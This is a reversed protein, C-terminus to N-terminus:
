LGKFTLMHCIWGSNANTGFVSYSGTSSVVKDATFHGALTERTTFSSDATPTGQSGAYGYILEEAQQTNKSGSSIATGTGSNAAYQDLPNSTAIGSYEAISMNAKISSGFHLTVTITAGGNINSAYYAYATQGYGTVSSGASSYTNSKSDTPANVTTGSPVDFSVVILNGTTSPNTFAITPSNSAGSNRNSKSQVYAPPPKAVILNTQTEYDVGLTYNTATLKVTYTGAVTYQHTPNQATDTGGDGFTWSWTDVKISGVQTATFVVNFPVYGTNVGPSFTVNPTLNKFVTVYNSQNLAAVVAWPTGPSDTVTHNVNFVCYESTCPYQHTPSKTTTTSSPDNFGWWYSNATLNTGTSSDTFTFTTTTNGFVPTRTWSVIPLVNQAVILNTFPPSVGLTYNTGTLSVTYTGATNYTHPNPTSTSDGFNWSYSDVNIAGVKAPTFAVNLPIIGMTKDQTFNVTPTLNRFITVWSSRNVWTSAEWPTGGASTVSHNITYGCVEGTNCPFFHSPSQTNSTNGDNFNWFYSSINTGSSIDTFQVLTSINGLNPFSFWDVSPPIPLHSPPSLVPSLVSGTLVTTGGKGDGLFVIVVKQPMTPSTYSMTEGVSWPEDGNNVFSATRDVGDVLIAYQGKYLSDGGKHYIYIVNSKNSIICSFVPVKSAAPNSLLLTSVLLIGIMVVGVLILTGVVESIAPEKM